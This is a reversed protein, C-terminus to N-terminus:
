GVVIDSLKVKGDVVVFTRTPTDNNGDVGQAGEKEGISNQDANDSNHENNQEVVSGDPNMTFSIMSDFNSFRAYAVKDEPTLDPYSTAYYLQLTEWHIEKMTNVWNVLRPNSEWNDVLLADIFIQDTEAAIQQAFEASFGMEAARQANEPTAGSNFWATIREELYTEMFADPNSLEEASISLSEVTPIVEPTQGENDEPSTVPDDIQETEDIQGPAQNASNIGYAVGGVILAGAATSALGAILGKRSKKKNPNSSPQEAPEPTTLPPLLETTSM